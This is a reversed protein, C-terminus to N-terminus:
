LLPLSKLEVLLKEVLEEDGGFEAERVRASLEQKRERVFEKRLREQLEGLEAHAVRAALLAVGNMMEDIAREGSTKKGACFLEFVRRHEEPFYGTFDALVSFDNLSFAVALLRESLMRRGGKAEEQPREADEGAGKSQMEDQVVIRSAEEKLSDESVGTRKALEKVWGDRAVPSAIAKIKGLVVRLRKIFERDRMDGRKESLYRKFYFEMAPIADAIFKKLLEPDEIVVDAADKHPETLVVRVTFDLAESLDIARELAAFGAEDSDLGLALRDTLRRLANLHDRTLATGSTAVVNTIGSQWAMVADMQGEVLFAEGTERIANRARLFNYLIKSKVFVPTEPSNVYKGVDGRDLEPLIRGTFGVIKGAHNLIPFMIRGRFRDFALGRDSKLSLGARIIDNLDYGKNILYVTLADGDPPAWGIDFEDITREEVKRGRMYKKAADSREFEKKFFDRASANIDYLLGFQKYELPSMRKLEIGAKEALIKLVEGFELNEHKMVFSFVDGGQDCGFCHWTQRDPSVIFSPTKERHFPCLGKLNKGAPSLQMYTRVVDVIDLKEKIRQTPNEM